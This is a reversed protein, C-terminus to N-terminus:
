TAGGGGAPAVLYTKGKLYYDGQPLEGSIQVTYKVWGDELDETSLVIFGNVVGELNENNNDFLFKGMGSPAPEDDCEGTLSDSSSYLGFKRNYMTTISCGEPFHGSRKSGTWHSGVGYEGGGSRTAGNEGVSIMQYVGDIVGYYSWKALREDGVEWGWDFPGGYYGDGPNPNNTEHWLGHSFWYNTWVDDWVWEGYGPMSPYEETVIENIDVEFTYTGGPSWKGDLEVNRFYSM